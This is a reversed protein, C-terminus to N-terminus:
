ALRASIQSGPSPANGLRESRTIQLDCPGNTRPQCGTPKQKNPKVDYAVIEGLDVHRAGGTEDLDGLLSVEINGVTKGLRELLRYAESIARMTRTICSGSPAANASQPLCTRP